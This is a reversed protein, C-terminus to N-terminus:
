LSVASFAGPCSAMWPNLVGELATTVTTNASPVAIITRLPSAIQGNLDASPHVDDHEIIYLDYTGAAEVDTSTNGSPVPFMTFNDLGKLAKLSRELDKVKSVTGSGPVPKTTAVKSVHTVVTYSANKVELMCDFTNQEYGSVIDYTQANGTLILDASNTTATLIAGPANPVNIGQLYEDANILAALATAATSASTDTATYSFVRRDQRQSGWIKNSTVIIAVNYIYGVVNTPITITSVQQVAAAYSQGKWKKVQTGKIPASFTHASSAGGRVIQIVPYDTIDKGAAVIAGTAADIVNVEGEALDTLSTADTAVGIKDILLTSNRLFQSM